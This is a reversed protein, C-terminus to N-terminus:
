AIDIPGQTIVGELQGERGALNHFGVDIAHAFYTQVICGDAVSGVHDGKEVVDVAQGVPETDVQFRPHLLVERSVVVSLTGKHGRGILLFIVVHVSGVRRLLISELM